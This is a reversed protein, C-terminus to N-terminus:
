GATTEGFPLRLFVTLQLRHALGTNGSPCLRRVAPPIDTTTPLSPGSDASSRLDQGQGPVEQWQGPVGQGLPRAPDQLWAQEAPGPGQDGGGGPQGEQGGSQAPHGRPRPLRPGAQGGAPRARPRIHVRPAAGQETTLDALQFYPFLQSFM